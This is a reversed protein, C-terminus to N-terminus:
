FEVLKVHRRQLEAHLVQSIFEVFQKVHPKV